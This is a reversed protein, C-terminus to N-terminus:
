NTNSTQSYFTYDKHKKNTLHEFNFIKKLKIDDLETTLQALNNEEFLDTVYDELMDNFKDSTYKKSDYKGLLDQEVEYEGEDITNVYNSPVVDYDIIAEFDHNDTEKLVKLYSESIHKDYVKDKNHEKYKDKNLNNSNSDKNYNKRTNESLDSYNCPVALSSYPQHYTSKKKSYSSKVTSVLERLFNDVKTKTKKDVDTVEDHTTKKEHHNSSSNINQIPNDMEKSIMYCLEPPADYNCKRLPDRISLYTEQKYEIEEQKYEIEEQEESKNQLFKSIENDSLINSSQGDCNDFENTIKSAFGDFEDLVSEFELENSTELIAKYDEAIRTNNDDKYIEEVCRISCHNM